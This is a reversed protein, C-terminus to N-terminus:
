TPSWENSDWFIRLPGPQTVVLSDGSGDFNNGNFDLTIPHTIVSRKFVLILEKGENLWPDDPFTLTFSETPDIIYRNGVALQLVDLEQTFTSTPVYLKDALEYTSLFYNRHYMSSLIQLDAFFGPINVSTLSVSFVFNSGYQNNQLIVCNCNSGFSLVQHGELNDVTQVGSGYANRLISGPWIPVPQGSDNLNLIRVRAAWNNFYLMYYSFGDTFNDVENYSIIEVRNPAEQIETEGSLNIDYGVMTISNIRFSMFKYNSGVPVNGDYYFIGGTKKTPAIYFCKIEDINQSLGSKDLLIYESISVGGSGNLLYEYYRIDTPNNKVSTLRDLGHNYFFVDNGRDDIVYQTSLYATSLDYASLLNYEVILGYNENDYRQKIAYVKTGTANFTLNLDYAAYYYTGNYYYVDELITSSANKVPAQVASALVSLLDNSLNMTSALSTETYAESALENLADQVNTASLSAVSPTFTVANALVTQLPRNVVLLKNAAVAIGIPRNSSATVTLSGSDSAYYVRGVTLSNSPMTALQGSVAVKGAAGNAIAETSVGFWNSATTGSIAQNFISLYFDSGSNYALVIKDSPTLSPYGLARGGAISTKLTIPIKTQTSGQFIEVVTYSANGGTEYYFALSGNYKFFHYNTLTGSISSATFPATVTFTLATSSNIADPNLNITIHNFRNTTGVRAYTTITTVTNSFDVYYDFADIVTGSDYFRRADSMYNTIETGNNELVAFDVATYNIDNTWIFAFRIGDFLRIVGRLTSGAPLFDIENSVYYVTTPSMDIFRAKVANGNSPDSYAILIRSGSLLTMHYNVVNQSSITTDLVTTASNYLLRFSKVRLESSASSYYAVVIHGAVLTVTKIRSVDESILVIEPDLIFNGVFTAKRITLYNSNSADKYLAYFSISNNPILILNQAAGNNFLIDGTLGAATYTSTAQSITGDTNLVVPRGQTISGTATFTPYTIADAPASGGGGSGVGLFTKMGALDYGLLTKADATANTLDDVTLAVNGTRGAVSSVRDTYDEKFWNNAYTTNSPNDILAAIRDGVNFEVGNVTAAGTVLFVNGKKTSTGGPFANTTPDWSGVLVFANTTANVKTVLADLDINTTATLRGLKAREAATYVFNSTGSLLDDASATTAIAQLGLNTRAAAVSGLDSLNLNRTLKNDLQTQQATSVPKNVDSTNDVNSLGVAEKSVIITKFTRDGALFTNPGAGTPLKDEKEELQSAFNTGTNTIANNLNQQVNSITQLLATNQQQLATAVADSIPKDEDATNDVNSLGVDSKEAPFVLNSLANKLAPGMNGPNTIDVM